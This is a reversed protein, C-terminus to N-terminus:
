LEQRRREFVIRGGAIPQDGFHAARARDRMRDDAADVVHAVDGAAHEQRHLVDVPLIQRRQQPPNSPQRRGLRRRDRPLQARPQCRRVVLGHQLTVECRGVHHDVAAAVRADRVEPERDARRGVSRRGIEGAREGVHRRELSRCDRFPLVRM